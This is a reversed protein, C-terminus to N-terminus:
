AAAALDSWYDDAEVFDVSAHSFRDINFDIDMGRDNALRVLCTPEDFELRAGAPIESRIAPFVPVTWVSGSVSTPQGTEYLAHNYSFRVGALDAAGHVISLRVSTDGIEAAVGGLEIHIRGQVYKSGDSFTAGDSHTTLLPGYQGWEGEGEAYPATDFSWVPVACLGSRGSLMTRIVNWVRRQAASHVPISDLTISWYGKDTRIVREKGGLSRGGGRSFAVPNAMVRTPALVKRPWLIIDPM